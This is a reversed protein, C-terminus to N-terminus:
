SGYMRCKECAQTWTLTPKSGKSDNLKAPVLKNVLTCM